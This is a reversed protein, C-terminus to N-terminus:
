TVCEYEQEAQNPTRYDLYQHSRQRNYFVEICEFVDSRAFERSDFRKREILEFELTAFFSEAVANDRCDCRGSMSPLLQADSLRSQYRNCSYNAGQDSHHILGPPPARHEIAMELAGLTLATDNHSGMSWGVVRRSFLDILVALYLWGQRTPVGTVDGVWVQDPAEAVFCRRLRNRAFWHHRKARTTVIFRWRHRAVIGNDQRLRAIRLKGCPIGERKLVRWTKLAGSHGRHVKHVREIERLLQRDAEQRRSV